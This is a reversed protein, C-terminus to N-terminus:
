PTSAGEQLSALLQSFEDWNDFSRLGPPLAMPEAGRLHAGGAYHLVAMGAALGAAIGPASDEVVLTGEPAAGMRQAAFLFLDPAPKGRSVQSATFVRGAFRGALGLVELTHAVRQPSSSTAICAPIRLGDLIARVGPTPLLETTFRDLLRARYDAEFSDPLPRGHAQRITQAVTPFSRGLFDRRVDAPTVAIGLAALQDILVSASLVESDAIVGDCDFIILGIGM